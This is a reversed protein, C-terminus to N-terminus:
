RHTPRDKTGHTPSSERAARSRKSGFEDAFLPLRYIPVGLFPLPADRGLLRAVLRPPLSQPEPEPRLGSRNASIVREDARARVGAEALRAEGARTESHAHSRPLTPEHRFRRDSSTM